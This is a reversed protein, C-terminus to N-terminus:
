GVSCKNKIALMLMARDGRYRKAHFNICGYQAQVVAGDVDMRKLQYHLEYRKAFGDASPVGGFSVVAWCYKTAACDHQPYATPTAGSVKVTYGCSSPVSADEFWSYFSRSYSLKTM